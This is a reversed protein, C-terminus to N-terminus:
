RNALGLLSSFVGRWDVRPADCVNSTSGSLQLVLGWVIRPASVKVSLRKMLRRRSSKTGATVRQARNPGHDVFCQALHVAQEGAHILCVDLALTGADCRLLQQARHEQLDEEAHTRLALEHLLDLVVEQIAAEDAQGHVILDPNGADRQARVFVIVGIFEDICAPGFLGRLDFFVVGSITALRVM